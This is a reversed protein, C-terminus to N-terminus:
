KNYINLLIDNQIKLLLEDFIDIEIEDNEIKKEINYTLYKYKKQSNFFNMNNMYFNKYVKKFNDNNKFKRKKIDQYENIIKINLDNTNDLKINFNSIIEENNKNIENPSMRSLYILPIIIYSIYNLMGGIPAWYDKIKFLFNITNNEYNINLISLILLCISFNCVIM